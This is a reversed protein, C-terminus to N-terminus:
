AALRLVVASNIYLDDNDAPEFSAGARVWGVVYGQYTLELVMGEPPNKMVIQM